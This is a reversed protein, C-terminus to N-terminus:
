TKVARYEERQNTVDLSLVGRMKKGSDAGGEAEAM